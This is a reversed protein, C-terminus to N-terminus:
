WRKARQLITAARPTQEPRANRVANNSVQEVATEPFAANNRFETATAWQDGAFSGRPPAVGAFKQEERAALNALWIQREREEGSANSALQKHVSVLNHWGLRTQTSGLSVKFAEEAERLRGMNYLLVGLDNSCSGNSPNVNLAARMFVLARTQSTRSRATNKDSLRSEFKGLAHLADSGAASYGIAQEIQSQAFGCYLDMAKTPSIVAIEEPTLLQTQHTYAKQMSQSAVFDNAEELATLGQAFREAYARPNSETQYSQSILLLALVFEERAAFFSKRRTLSEGYDIHERARAEVQPNTRRRPLLTQQLSRGAAPQALPISELEKWNEKRAPTPQLTNPELIPDLEVDAEYSTQQITLVSHQADSRDDLREVPALAPQRSDRVPELYPDSSSMVRRRTRRPLRSATKAPGPLREFAPSNTNRQNIDQSAFDPRASRTMPPAPTMAPAPAPQWNPAIQNAELGLPPNQQPRYGSAGHELQQPAQVNFVIQPETHSDNIVWYAM